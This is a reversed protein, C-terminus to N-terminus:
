TCARTAATSSSAIPSGPTSSEGETDWTCARAPSNRVLTNTAALNVGRNHVSIGHGTATEVVRCHNVTATWKPYVWDTDNDDFVIGGDYSNTVTFGEVVFPATSHATRRFLVCRNRGEGDIITQDAGGSSRLILSKNNVFVVNTAPEIKLGETFVANTPAVYRGPGVLVTDGHAAISVADPHQKGGLVVRQHVPLATDARRPRCLLGHRRCPYRM